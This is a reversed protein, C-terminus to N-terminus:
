YLMPTCKTVTAVGRRAKQGNFLAIQALIEVIALAQRGSSKSRQVKATHQTPKSSTIVVADSVVASSFSLGISLMFSTSASGAAASCSVIAAWRSDKSESGAAAATGNPSRPSLLTNTVAVVGCDRLALTTRNMRSRAFTSGLALRSISM